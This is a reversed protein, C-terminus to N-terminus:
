TADQRQHQQRGAADLDDLVAELGEEIAYALVCAKGFAARVSAEWGDVGSAEHYHVARGGLKAEAATCFAAIDM